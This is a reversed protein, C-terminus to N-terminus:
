GATPPIYIGDAISRLMSGTVVEVEHHYGAKRFEHPDGPWDSPRVAVLIPAYGFNRCGKAIQSAQGRGLSWNVVIWQPSCSSLIVGADFSTEAGMVALDGPQNIMCAVALVLGPNVKRILGRAIRFREYDSRHICVKGPTVNSAQLAGSKIWSRVTPKTVGLDSAIQSTTVYERNGSINGNGGMSAM